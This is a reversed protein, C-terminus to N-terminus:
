CIRPLLEGLPVDIIRTGGIATRSTGSAGANQLKSNYQNYCKTPKGAASAEILGGVFSGAYFKARYNKSLAQLM